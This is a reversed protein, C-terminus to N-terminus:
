FKFGLLHRTYRDYDDKANSRQASSFITEGNELANSFESSTRIPIPILQKNYKSALINFAEISNKIRRDFHSYLIKIIPKSLDFAECISETEKLTSELGKISFADHCVPIVICDAACISSIVAAGLSPPCDIFVLDFGEKKLINCVNRAAFKQSAPEMLQLDLLGNEMSSPLIYLNKTIMRLSGILMEEPKQWVDCFVPEDDDPTIGFSLSASGQSDLDLICTKFGYQVARVAMSVTSTTKGVGGKLNVHAITNFQYKVGKRLLYKKIINPPVGKRGGSMMIFSEKQQSESFDNEIDPFIRRLENLTMLYEKNPNM